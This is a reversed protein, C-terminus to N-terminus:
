SEDEDDTLARMFEDDGTLIAVTGVLTDGGPTGPKGYTREIAQQWLATAAHNHPMQELKGHENCFAFCPVAEVADTDLYTNWYPVAEIYGGVVKQLTGLSPPRAFHTVAPTRSDPRYVIMKGQM